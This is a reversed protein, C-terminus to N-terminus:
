NEEISVFNNGLERVNTRINHGNYHMHDIVNWRGEISPEDQYIKFIMSMLDFLM